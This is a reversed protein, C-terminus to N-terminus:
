KNKIYKRRLFYIQQLLYIKPLLIQRLKKIIVIFM